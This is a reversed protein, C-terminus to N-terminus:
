VTRASEDATDCRAQKRYASRYRFVRLGLHLCAFSFLLYHPVIWFWDSVYLTALLAAIGAALYFWPLADYVLKPLWIKRRLLQVLRATPTRRGSEIEQPATGTFM